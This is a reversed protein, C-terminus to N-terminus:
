YIGSERCVRKEEEVFNTAKSVQGLDRKRKEISHRSQFKRTKKENEYSKLLDFPDLTTNNVTIM